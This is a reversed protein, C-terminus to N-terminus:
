SVYHRIIYIKDEGFKFKIGASPTKFYCRLSYYRSVVQWITNLWHVTRRKFQAKSVNLVLIDSTTQVSFQVMWSHLHCWCFVSNLGEFYRPDTQLNKPEGQTTTTETEIM